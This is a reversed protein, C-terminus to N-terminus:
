SQQARNPNLEQQWDEVADIPYILMLTSLALSDRAVFAATLELALVMAVVTATRMSYAALFGGLMWAYDMVANLVSDGYYGVNITTARFAGLVWDTHEILEWFIGTSVAVLMLVRFSVRPFFLRGGLAILVGHLIHSLTYWDAVHQSNGSDFISGVWLKVTGCTCTPPQGWWLLTLAIVAVGCAAFFWLLRLSLASKMLCSVCINQADSRLDVKMEINLKVKPRTYGSM